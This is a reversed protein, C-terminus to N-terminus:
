LRIGFLLFANEDQPNFLLGSIVPLSYSETIKIEKILNIGLNVVGFSDGYLGSEPTLGLYCVYDIEKIKGSYGIELYTSFNQDGADNKDDGYFSVNASLSVPFADWGGIIVSGEIIHGTEENKYNFYKTSKAPNNSQYAPFFYDTFGITVIDAINYNIYIDMEQYVDTDFSFAGWTGISLGATRFEM